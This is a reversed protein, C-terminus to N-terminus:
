LLSVEDGVRVTKGAESAAVRTGVALRYSHDFRSGPAWAPLSARRRAAFTKQFLPDAQGTSPDRTPVACRPWPELGEFHVEGVRFPVAADGDAVLRDEWFPAGAAVELNARFRRRGQDLDLGPFWSAVEALTETCVVTPGFYLSDDPFGRVADHRLRVAFGFYESLWVALRDRERDLHFSEAARAGEVALGVTRRPLDYSARLRHVRQHRKGNVMRGTDDVMALERDGELGGGARIRATCVPVGDLAKIPYLVIRSLSPVAGDYV